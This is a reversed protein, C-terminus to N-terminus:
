YNEKNVRFANENIYGKSKSQQLLKEIIGIWKNGLVEFTLDAVLKENGKRGMQELYDRDHFLEVIYGALQQYDEVEFILGNEGHEIVEPIGGSRSAIIGKSFYMAELLTMPLAEDRSPLVFVDAAQIYALVKENPLEGLVHLNQRRQAM